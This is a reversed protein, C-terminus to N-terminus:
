CDTVICRIQRKVFPPLDMRVITAVAERWHKIIKPRGNEFTRKEDACKISHLTFNLQNAAQTILLVPLATKWIIEWSNCYINARQMYM